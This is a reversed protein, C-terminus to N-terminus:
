GTCTGRVVLTNNAADIPAEAPDNEWDVDSLGYWRICYVTAEHAAAQRAGSESQSVNRVIVEFYARDSRDVADASARFVVGDFPIRNPGQTCGALAAAGLLLLSFARLGTM